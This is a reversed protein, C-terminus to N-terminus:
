SIGKYCVLISDDIKVNSYNEIQELTLGSYALAESQIKKVSKPIILTELKCFCFAKSGIHEVNCLDIHELRSHAFACNEIKVVTSPLIVNRIATGTFVDRGISEIGEPIRIDKNHGLYAVLEKDKVVFESKWNYDKNFIIGRTVADSYSHYDGITIGMDFEKLYFYLTRNNNFIFSVYFDTEDCKDLYANVRYRIQQLDSVKFISTKGEIILFGNENVGYDVDCNPDESIVAREIWNYGSIDRLKTLTETFKEVFEKVNM